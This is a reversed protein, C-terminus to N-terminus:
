SVARARSLGARRARSRRARHPRKRELRAAAAGASGQATAAMADPWPPGAVAPAPAEPATQTAEPGSTTYPGFAFVNSLESNGSTVYLEGTSDVTIGSPGGDIVTKQLRKIFNGESDFEDIGGAPHEFGPQLNDVVLIHGNTPDVAISADVLSVFGGQPELTEVVGASKTPEFVKVTDSAADPVYIRGGFVALGYADGLSGAGIKEILAGTSAYKVIRTRDNAYVNGDSDVAVGTSSDEDFVMPSPKLRIVSEHWINAYLAGASDFALGCPGEPPTGAPILEVGGSFGEVLHHYYDSVYIVGGPSLAVGCAGEIQEEPVLTAEPNVAKETILDRNAQASAPVLAAALSLACLVAISWPRSLGRM